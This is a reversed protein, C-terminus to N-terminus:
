YEDALMYTMGGTENVCAYSKPLISDIPLRMTRGEDEIVPKKITPDGVFMDAKIHNPSTETKIQRYCMVFTMFNALSRSHELLPMFGKTMVDTPKDFVNEM